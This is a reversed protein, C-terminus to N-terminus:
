QEVEIGHLACWARLAKEQAEREFDFWSELAGIRILFDKFRRYGGKRRFMAVIEDYHRSLREDAFRMVLPKGLDLDRPSPLQFYKEDDDIDEPEPFLEPDSDYRWYVEGTERNVRASSGFVPDSSILEFAELLPSFPIPL